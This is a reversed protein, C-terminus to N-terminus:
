KEVKPLSSKLLQLSTVTSNIAVPKEPNAHQELFSEAHLFDASKLEVGAASVLSYTNIYQRLDARSDGWPNQAALHM